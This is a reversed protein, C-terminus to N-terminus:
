RSFLHSREMFQTKLLSNIFNRCRDESTRGRVTIKTKVGPFGNWKKSLKRMFEDPSRAKISVDQCERFMHNVIQVPTGFIISDLCIDYHCIVGLQKM